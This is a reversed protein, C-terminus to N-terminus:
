HVPSPKKEVGRGERGAHGADRRHRCVKFALLPNGPHELVGAAHVQRGDGVQALLGSSEKLLVLGHRRGGQEGLGGAQQLLDRQQALVRRHAADALLQGAHLGLGARQQAPQDPVHGALTIM